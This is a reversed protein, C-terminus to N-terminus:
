NKWARKAGRWMMDLRRFCNEFDLIMERLSSMRRYVAAAVAAAEVDKQIM